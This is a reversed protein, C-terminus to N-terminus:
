VGDLVPNSREITCDRLMVRALEDHLVYPNENGDMKLIDEYRERERKAAKEFLSSKLDFSSTRLNKVYPAIAPGAVMGGSICSRLSNAGLRNAGHYGYDAEGAAYLGSINTAQNRPSGAVLKGDSSKEFDVWLGGMSYHVAPFIRMPNEYPDEGV